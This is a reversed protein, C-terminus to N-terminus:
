GVLDGNNALAFCLRLWGHSGPLVPPLYPDAESQGLAAASAAHSQSRCRAGHVGKMEEGDRERERDKQEDEELRYQYLM